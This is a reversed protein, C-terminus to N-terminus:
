NFTVCHFNRLIDTVMQGNFTVGSVEIDAQNNGTQFILVPEGDKSTAVSRASDLWHFLAWPGQYSIAMGTKDSHPLTMMSLQSGRRDTPWQLKTITLPGHAYSITTSDFGLNLQEFEPSLALIQIGLSLMFKKNDDSQFFVQRITAAQEFMDLADSEGNMLNQENDTNKYRWPKVSTDVKDALNKNYYQEVMGGPSFFREFDVLRVQKKSDEFPYRGEINNKCFQGLGEEIGQNSKSVVVQMARQYSASLLPTILNNLPLPWSQAETSLRHLDDSIVPINGNRISNQYVVLLTYQQSLESLLHSLGNSAPSSGILEDTQNAPSISMSNSGQGNIFQHLASFRDDVTQRILKKEAALRAVTMKMGVNLLKSKSTNDRDTNQQKKADNVVSLSTEDVVRQLLAILPSNNQSVARLMYINASLDQDNEAMNMVSINPRLNELFHQWHNAYDNLYLALVQQRVVGVADIPTNLDDSNLIFQKGLIDGDEVMSSVLRLDMKKKFVQYFGERTFIGPIFDDKSNNETSFLGGTGNKAISTLTVDPPSIPALSTLLNQYIRDAADQHELLKRASQVLDFNVKQGYQRRQDLELLAKIHQIFIDSEQWAQLRGADDWENVLKNIVFNEDLKIEGFIMLYLRLNEYVAPSNNNDVTSQLTSTIQQELLPELRNRLLFEYSNQSLEQIDHGTYLGYRWDYDPADLDLLPYFPFERTQNLMAALKSDERQKIYQGNLVLLANAKDDITNLYQHNNLYSHYFGNILFYTLFIFFCHGLLRQFRYKSHSIINHTALGQDNVIVENFLQKLFYQRGVIEQSLMNNHRTDESKILSALSTAKKNEAINFFSQMISQNNVLQADGTQHSSTFYIGRLTSYSQTDDYRSAFFVQQLVEALVLSLDRFDLPLLYMKKCDNSDYEEQQRVIMDDDIRKELLTLENLITSKLDNSDRDSSMIYPLTVGWVQERQQATLNRFYEIFGPLEDLKSIIVYTPFRVGLTHRLDNLRSRLSAALQTLDGKSRSMLESASITLITGNIAKAPRYKKLTKLLAQWEQYTVDPQSVYKGTTDIYIADNTFLCDCHDTPKSTKGIQKLQETNPFQLGSNIISLTKGSNEPGIVMYWPLNDLPKRDLIYRQFLSLQQKKSNVYNVANRIEQNLYTFDDKTQKAKKFSLLKDLLAPNNKLAGLLCWVGYVLALMLIIVIVSLRTSTPKLPYTKDILVYPGLTWCIVCCVLTISIFFPWSYLYSIVYFAVLAILLLRSGVSVFPRSEGFGFFPGLYWIAVMLLLTCILTLTTKVVNATFFKAFKSMM